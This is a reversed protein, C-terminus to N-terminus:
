NRNCENRIEKNQNKIKLDYCYPIEVKAFGNNKMKNELRKPLNISRFFYLLRSILWVFILIESLICCIVKWFVHMRKWLSPEREIYGDIVAGYRAARYIYSGHISSWSLRIKIADSQLDILNNKERNEIVFVNHERDIVSTKPAFLIFVACLAIFIGVGIGSYANAMDVIGTKNMMNLIAMQTTLIAILSICFNIIKINRYYHGKNKTRILGAIAFGLELFSIFALLLVYVMSDNKIKRKIFFMRCMFGIYFVSSVFLFFAILINRQKFTRKTTKVGLVCELKALLIGFTYVAISIMNYDTFLGIVLKGSALVVSFCLGIITKYITKQEFSLERYKRILNRM